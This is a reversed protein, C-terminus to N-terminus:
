ASRGAAHERQGLTYPAAVEWRSVTRGLQASALAALTAQMSDLPHVLEPESRGELLALLRTLETQHGKDQRRNKMTRRRAGAHLTLERFDDLVGSHGGAHVEVYEKGLSRAGAVGYLITALSGNAFELAVSFRQAAALPKNPEARM